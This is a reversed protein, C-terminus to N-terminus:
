KIRLRVSLWKALQGLHTVHCIPMCTYCVPMVKCVGVYSSLLMHTRSMVIAYLCQKIWYYGGLYKCFRNIHWPVM